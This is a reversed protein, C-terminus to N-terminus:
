LRRNRRVTAASATAGGGDAERWDARSWLYRSALRSVSPDMGPVEIDERMSRRATSEGTEPPPRVGITPPPVHWGCTYGHHGRGDQDGRFFPRAADHKSRPVARCNAASAPALVAPALWAKIPASNEAAQKPLPAAALVQSRCPSSPQSTVPPQRCASRISAGGSNRSNTCGERVAHLDHM